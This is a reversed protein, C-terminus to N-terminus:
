GHIWRAIAQAADGVCSIVSLTLLVAVFWNPADDREVVVVPPAPPMDLQRALDRAADPTLVFNIIPAGTAAMVRLKAPLEDVREFTTELLLPKLDAM